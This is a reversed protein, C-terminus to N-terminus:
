LTHELLQLVTLCMLIGDYLLGAIHKPRKQGVKLVFSQSTLQLITKFGYFFLSYMFNTIFM